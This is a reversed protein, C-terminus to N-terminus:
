SFIKELSQTVTFETAVAVWLVCTILCLHKSQFAGFIHRFELGCDTLFSHCVPNFGIYQQIGIEPNKDHWSL